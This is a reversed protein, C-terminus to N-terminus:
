KQAEWQRVKPFDLFNNESIRFFLFYKQFLLSIGLGGM